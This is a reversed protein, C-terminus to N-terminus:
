CGGVNSGPLSRLGRRAKQKKWFPMIKTVSDTGIMRNARVEKKVMASFKLKSSMRGKRSASTGFTTLLSQWSGDKRPTMAWSKGPASMFATTARSLDMVEILSKWDWNTM